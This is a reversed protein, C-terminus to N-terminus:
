AVYGNPDVAIFGDDGLSSDYGFGDDGFTTEIIYLKYGQKLTISQNQSTGTLSLTIKATSNQLTTSTLNFGALASQAQQSIPGPYIEYSYPYYQTSNFLTKSTNVVQSGTSSNNQNNSYTTANIQATPTTHNGGFIVIGIMTIILVISLGAIIKTKM